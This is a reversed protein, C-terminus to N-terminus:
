FFKDGAGTLVATQLTHDLRLTQLVDLLELCTQQTFKNGNEPRNITIILTAGDREVLVDKYDNM